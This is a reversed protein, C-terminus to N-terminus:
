LKVQALKDPNVIIYIDRIRGEIVNLAWVAEVRGERLGLVAPQGNVEALRAEFGTFGGKRRIGLFFKAVNPAGRVPNLAARTRGGGDSYLVVDQDLLSLLGDLDGDQLSKGFAGLLRRHAAPDAPYRPRRAAVAERARSLIQRCNPESKGTLAAIEAFDFDFAERLLFVARELPSLAELMVLFAFSLSDALVAPDQIGTTLIPEPLWPGTYTERKSRASDLQNLCLRTVITTLFARPSRVDADGADAWRLYSEQVIDEAEARSGLMRYALAFLLPREGEFQELRADTVPM